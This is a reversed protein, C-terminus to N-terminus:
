DGYRQIGIPQESTPAKELMLFRLMDEPPFPQAFHYGQALDCGMERLLTAQRENEVGEAVVKMGLIHALDVIASVIAADQELEKIFYKDIKLIDAPLRKLYSLSSHGVGFDDIAVRVGARKLCNVTDTPDETVGIYATETIDLSLSGAELSTKRLIEEVVQVLNPRQLQKASVNVAVVLPQGHLYEEQWEKAQRCAEELVQEGVPGILGTEEVIPVFKAPALVGRSPHRWRVLAEVGWTTEAQLDVIPQYLVLFEKAEIALRLERELEMRELTQEYMVPDFVRYSTPEEKARYMAIDAEKLLDEPTKPHDASGVAVGISLTAFIEQRDLVFPNELTKEIRKIVHTIDKPTDIGELLITFEDGGFRALSDEPRLSRRLREGVAVLLRDGVEHGLSDNIIKFNDLDLFLVAVQHGRRRTRSLAQKLRDTFLQRNPLDTLLDHFAQYRLREEARKRETIDRASASAGVINGRSDKIPSVTVLVDILRSDKGVRQTEYPEVIEGLKIKELIEAVEGRRDPPVLVYIPQGIIEEKTYGYLREAGKNWSTITGDPTKALIADQSHEVIAALRAREEEARERKSREEAEHVARRVAPVLRELRQKLVYDTAGSKLAEIAREEGIAGSVLIFPVEPKLERAVKLALLGDFEPLSHDALILDFEREELAAVFDGRDQVRLLKCDIEAEALKSRVLEMDLLDDELHLIHLGRAIKSEPYGQVMRV